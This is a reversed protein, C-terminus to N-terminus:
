FRFFIVKPLINFKSFTNVLFEFHQHKFGLSILTIPGVSKLVYRILSLGHELNKKGWLSFKANFENKFSLEIAFDNIEKVLNVFKGGYFANLSENRFSIAKENYDVTVLQELAILFNKKVKLYKM